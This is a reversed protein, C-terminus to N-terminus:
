TCLKVGSILILHLLSSNVFSFSFDVVDLSPLGSLFHSSLKLPWLWECSISLWLISLNICYHKCKICIFSSVSLMTLLETGNTLSLRFLLMYRHLEKRYNVFDHLSSLLVDMHQVLIKLVSNDEQPELDNDLRLLNEIFELAYSTISESATRVTLISFIAPVLNNTGLLPALKPSQSMVMFCSFLSSPKESSSAEQRFCDILPKVSAFFTNWFYEGFDHSEYQGLALSVIRICLSRLDKLQKVSASAQM